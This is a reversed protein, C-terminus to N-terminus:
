VVEAILRFPDSTDTLKLILTSRYYAFLAVNFEELYKIMLTSVLNDISKYYDIKANFYTFEFALLTM